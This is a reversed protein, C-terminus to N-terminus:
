HHSYRTAPTPPNCEDDEPTETQTKFDRMANRWATRESCHQVHRYYAAQENLWTAAENADTIITKDM